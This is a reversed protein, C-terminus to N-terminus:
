VALLPATSARVRSSAITCALSPKRKLESQGAGRLHTGGVQSIMNQRRTVLESLACWEELVPEAVVLGLAVAALDVERAASEALGDLLCLGYEEEGAVLAAEDIGVVHDDVSPQGLYSKWRV